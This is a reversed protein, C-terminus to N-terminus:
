PLPEFTVNRFTIAANHVYIGCGGRPLFDIPLATLAPYGSDILQRRRHPTQEHLKDISFPGKGLTV